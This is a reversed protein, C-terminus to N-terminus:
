ATESGAEFQEVDADTWERAVDAWHKAGHQLRIRAKGPGNKRAMIRIGMSRLLAGRDHDSSLSLWRNTLLETTDRVDRRAEIRIGADMLVRRKAHLGDLIRIVSEAVDGAIARAEWDAIATDIKELEATHDEAPVESIEQVYSGHFACLVLGPIQREVDDARVRLRCDLKQRREHRYYTFKLGQPNTVVTRYMAGKCKDCFIVHLWPVADHPVGAGKSNAQLKAQLRDWTRADIIPPRMVPLGEDDRVIENNYTM